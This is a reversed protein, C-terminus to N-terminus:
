KQNLKIEIRRNRSFAAEDNGPDIPQFEGYGSASLREPPIGQDILFRVVSIARASSLEWNSPFLETSIPRRDAHGIVSLIWNIDKPISSSIQKLTEALKILQAQGNAELEASGSQFFVESQFVFRDGVIKIDPRNGLAKKLRGFFESRYDALEEVKSVLAAQLKKNLEDIKIEKETISGHALDLDANLAALRANLEDIQQSLTALLTEKFALDKASADQATRSRALEADLKQKERGLEATSAQESKLSQALKRLKDGLAGLEVDRSVLAHSLYFQAALMIVLVLAIMMLMTSLADVYGPWVDFSRRRARRSEYTM